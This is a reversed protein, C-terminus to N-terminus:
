KHLSLFHNLYGIGEHAFLKLFLKNVKARTECETIEAKLQHKILKYLIFHCEDLSKRRVIVRWGDWVAYMQNQKDFSIALCHLTIKYREVFYIEDNM